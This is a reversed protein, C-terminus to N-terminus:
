RLLNEAKKTNLTLTNGNSNTQELLFGTKEDFYLETWGFLNKQRAVWVTRNKRLSRKTIKFASQYGYFLIQRNHCRDKKPIWIKIRRPPTSNVVFGKKDILIKSPIPQFPSMPVRTKILITLMQPTKESVLFSESIKSDQTFELLDKTNLLINDNNMQLAWLSWGALLLVLFLTFDRFIKITKEKPFRM